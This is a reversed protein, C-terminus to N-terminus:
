VAKKNAKSKKRRKSKYSGQMSQSAVKLFAKICILLFLEVLTSM